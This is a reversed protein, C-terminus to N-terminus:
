KSQELTGTLYIVPPFKDKPFNPNERAIIIYRTETKKCKSCFVTDTNTSNVEVPYWDHECGPETQKKNAM